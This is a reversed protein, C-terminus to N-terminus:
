VLSKVDQPLDPREISSSAGEDTVKSGESTEADPPESNAFRFHGDSVRQIIGKQAHGSLTGRITKRSRVLGLANCERMVDDTTFRAGIEGLHQYIQRWENGLTAFGESTKGPPQRVGNGPSLALGSPPAAGEDQRAILQLEDIVERQIEIQHRLALIRDQLNTVERELDDVKARREKISRILNISM